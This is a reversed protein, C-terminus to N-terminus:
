CVRIVETSSQEAAASLTGTSSGGWVTAFECVCVLAGQKDYALSFPRALGSLKLRWQERRVEKTNVFVLYVAGDLEGRTLQLAFHYDHLDANMCQVM